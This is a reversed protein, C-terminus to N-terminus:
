QKVMKEDVLYRSNQELYQRPSIGTVRKFFRGFFSQTAFNLKESITKINYTGDYIMLKIRFVVYQDIIDSAPMQTFQTTIFSLYKATIHVKDAYFSVSRERDYYENLLDLFNHFLEQQRTDYALITEEFSRKFHYLNTLYITILARLTFEKMLYDPRKMEAKQRLFIEKFRNIHEPLFHHYHFCFSNHRISSKFGLHNYIDMMLCAEVIHCFFIARSERVEVFTCPMIAIYDYPKMKITLGDVVLEMSGQTVSIVISYDANFFSEIGKVIGDKSDLNDVYTYKGKYSLYSTSEAFDQATLCKSAIMTISEKNTKEGDPITTSPIAAYNTM